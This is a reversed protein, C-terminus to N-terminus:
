VAISTALLATSVLPSIWFPHLGLSRAVWAQGAIIVLAAVFVPRRSEPPTKRRWGPAATM